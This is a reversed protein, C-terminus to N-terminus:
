GRGAVDDAQPEPHSDISGALSLLTETLSDLDSTTLTATASELMAAFEGHLDRMLQHASPTLELYLSRRDSPHDVRVLLGREVLRTSIFTVAATTIELHLALQKPTSRVSSAVRFLARLESASLGTQTEILSRRHQMANVFKVAAAPFGDLAHARNSDNQM